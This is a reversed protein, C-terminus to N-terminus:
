PAVELDLRVIEHPALEVEAGLEEGPSAQGLAARLVPGALGEVRM